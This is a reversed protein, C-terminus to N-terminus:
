KSGHENYPKEIYEEGNRCTVKGDINTSPRYLIHKNRITAFFKNLDHRDYAREMSMVCFCVCVTYHCSGFTSAFLKRSVTAATVIDQPTVETRFEAYVKCKQARRLISRAIFLDVVAGRLM